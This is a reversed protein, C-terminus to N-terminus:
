NEFGGTVYAATLGPYGGGPATWDRTPCVWGPSLPSPIPSAELQGIMLVYYAGRSADCGYMGANYRYYLYTQTCSTGKPDGPVRGLIGAGTLQGIFDDGSAAGNRYGADYGSCDSDTNLPYRGYERKYLELADTITQIDSMRRADRAKKQIGSFAYVAITALLGIIAVAIVMEVLTFGNRVSSDPKANSPM